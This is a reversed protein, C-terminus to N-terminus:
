SNWRVKDIVPIGGGGVTIVVHGADVLTKIIPEEVVSVPMPSPIVRRWGRNSDEKMTYGKEQM